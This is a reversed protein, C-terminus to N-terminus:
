KTWDELKINEIRSLHSTNNTVLILNNIIATAGILLDFDDIKMGAKELRTKEKAYTDLGNIIPLVQIERVFDDVVKRHFEFNDSKEAGYKLEALTIESIFCNNKGKANIKKSIDFRGKFLFIIINTDILYM